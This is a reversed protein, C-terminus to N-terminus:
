RSKSGEGENEEEKKEGFSLRSVDWAASRRPGAEDLELDGVDAGRVPKVAFVGVVGFLGGGLGGELPELVRAHRRGKVCPGARGRRGVHVRSIQAALRATSSHTKGKTRSGRGGLGQSRCSARASKQRVASTYLM